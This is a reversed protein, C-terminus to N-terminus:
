NNDLDQIRQRVSLPLTDVDVLGAQGHGTDFRQLFSQVTDNEFWYTWNRHGNPRWGILIGDHISVAQYESGTDTTHFGAYIKHTTTTM